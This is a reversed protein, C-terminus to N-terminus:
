PPAPGIRVALLTCDDNVMHGGQRMEEVRERWAGQEMGALQGWDLPGQAALRLLGQAVADTSLLFLDGPRCTDAATLPAPPPEPLTGLLAPGITFQEAHALPFSARLRSGRTWLLCSDGVAWARWPFPGEASPGQGVQFTLLTAAAGTREVKLRQSWRLTPLGIQASWEAQRAELWAALVAQEGLDPQDRVFSDALLHAWARCFIGESAGDSVAAARGQPDCAFADEWESEANGAKFHWLARAEWAPVAGGVPQAAPPVPRHLLHDLMPGPDSNVALAPTFRSVEGPTEVLSSGERLVCWPAQHGFADAPVDAGFVAHALVVPPTGLLRLSAAARAYDDGCGQGDTCHLVLPPASGPRSLLWRLVLRHAGALAATPDAADGIGDVGVRGSLDALPMLFPEHEAGPLLSALVLGAPGAAYGVVGVELGAVSPDGRASAQRLADLGRELLAGAQRAWPASTPLLCLLCGHRPPGTAHPSM